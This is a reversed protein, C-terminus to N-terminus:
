QESLSGFNSTGANPQSTFFSGGPGRVCWAFAVGINKALVGIAGGNMEVALGNGTDAHDTTSTWFPSAPVVFPHGPPLSPDTEAPDVLSRLENVMPSRWAVRGGTERALCTSIGAEWSLVSIVPEREWVLGTELDLIAADGMVCKFRSSNCGNPEGDSADLIQSWAPLVEDLSKMTPAPPGSPELDGAMAGGAVGLLGVVLLWHTAKM